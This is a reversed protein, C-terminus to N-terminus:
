DERDDEFAVCWTQVHPTREPKEGQVGRLTALIWLTLGVCGAFILATM